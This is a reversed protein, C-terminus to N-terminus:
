AARWTRTTRLHSVDIGLEQLRTRFQPLTEGPEPKLSAKQVNVGSELELDTFRQADIGHQTLRERFHDLTENEPKLDLDHANVGSELEADTYRSADIGYVKLRERFQEMTEVNPSLVVHEVKQNLDPQWPVGQAPGPVVLSVGCWVLLIVAMITTAWMIKMAKDSSEHIGRLNQRFFYFTVLVALVVSGWRQVM